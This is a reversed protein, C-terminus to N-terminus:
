GAVRQPYRCATAIASVSLSSTNTALICEADVIGELQTLLGRKADLNEVIAEVVMDCGSLEEITAVPKLLALAADAADQ